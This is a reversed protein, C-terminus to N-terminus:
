ARQRREPMKKEMSAKMRALELDLSDTLSTPIRKQSLILMEIEQAIDRIKLAGVQSSSGRLAHMRQAAQEFLGNDLDDRTQQAIHRNESVFIPLLRKFLDPNHSMTQMAHELDIGDIAPFMRWPATEIREALCRVLAEQQLPKHLLVDAGAQLIEERQPGVLDATMAIIPLERLSPDSRIVRTCEIGDMNPMQIDMLVADFDTEASKLRELAQRGDLAATVRIGVSGLMENVLFQIAQSDEVVLVHTDNLHDTNLEVNKDAKTASAIPMVGPLSLEFWFTSGINPLSKFGISGGMSEIIRKSISLGLGTGGFRRAAASDTQKFPQFVMPELEKPIGIGTDKVEVRIGRLPAHGKIYTVTVTVEGRNTFKIANGVLNALVQEIRFGDGMLWDPCDPAVHCILGIGKDTALKAFMRECKTIVEVLSFQTSELSLEGAEIKSHDLVDNVIRMLLHDVDILRSVLDRQRANLDEAQLLETIGLISTLPTRIEHSMMALFQAKQQEQEEAQTKAKLLERQSTRLPTVDVFTAIASDNLSIAAVIVDHKVGSRCAISVEIPDSPTGNVAHSKVMEAVQKSVLAATKEDQCSFDFLRHLNQIEIATYGFVETFTANIFTIPSPSTTDFVILPIPVHQLILRLETEQAKLEAAASELAQERQWIANAMSEFHQNIEIFERPQGTLSAMPTLAQGAEMTRNTVDTCRHRLVDQRLKRSKIAIIFILGFLIAGLAILLTNRQEDLLRTSVLVVVKAGLPEYDNVVSIWGQGDAQIRPTDLKPSDSRWEANVRPVTIDPRGSVMVVGQATTLLLVNGTIQSYQNILDRIFSLDLRGLITQDQSRYAVYVSPLSDEYGQVITSLTAMNSKKLLQDWVPGAAFTYGRFIQSNQSSKYIETVQGAADLAYLDSFSGFRQKALERRQAQPLSGFLVLQEQANSLEADIFVNVNGADAVNVAVFREQLAEFVYWIAAIIILVTAIAASIDLRLNKERLTSSNPM